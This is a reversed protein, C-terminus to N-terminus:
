SSAAIYLDPNVQFEQVFYNFTTKLQPLSLNLKFEPSYNIAKLISNYLETNEEYTKFYKDNGFLLEPDNLCEYFLENFYFHILHAYIIAVCFSKAPYYLRECESSFYECSRQIIKVDSDELIISLLPHEEQYLRNTINQIVKYEKL